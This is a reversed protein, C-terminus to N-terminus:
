NNTDDDSKDKKDSSQLQDKVEDLWDHVEDDPTTVQYSGDIVDSEIYPLANTHQHM